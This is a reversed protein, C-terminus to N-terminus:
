KASQGIGANRTKRFNKSQRMLTEMLDVPKPVAARMDRLMICEDRRRPVSGMLRYMWAWQQIFLLGLQLINQRPLRVVPSARPLPYEYSEYQGHSQRRVAQPRLIRASVNVVVPNQRM